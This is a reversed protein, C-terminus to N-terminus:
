PTPPKGDDKEKENTRENTRAAGCKLDFDGDVSGDRGVEDQCTQLEVRGYGGEGKREKSRRGIATLAFPALTSALAPGELENCLAVCSSASKHQKTGMAFQSQDTNSGHTKITEHSQPRIYATRSTQVSM